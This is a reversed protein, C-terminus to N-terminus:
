IMRKLLQNINGGMYGLSGGQKFSLKTSRFGHKPPHLKFVTKLETMNYNDEFVQKPDTSIQKKTFLRSLTEQDIEGFAVYSECKKLMGFYTDNAKVLICNNVFRLNLRTMTERINSRVNVRGRIRIVAVLKDKIINNM